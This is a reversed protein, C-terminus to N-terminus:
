WIKVDCRQGAILITLVLNVIVQHYVMFNSALLYSKTPCFYIVFIKFFEMDVRFLLILAPSFLLSCRAKTAISAHFPPIHYFQSYSYYAVYMSCDLWPITPTLRRACRQTHVPRHARPERLNPKRKTAVARGRARARSALAVKVVHESRLNLQNLQTM